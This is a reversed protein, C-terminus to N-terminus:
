LMSTKTGTQLLQLDHNKAVRLQSVIQSDFNKAVIYNALISVHTNPSIDGLFM